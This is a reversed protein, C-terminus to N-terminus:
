ELVIISDSEVESVALDVDSLPDCVLCSILLFHSLNLDVLISFLWPPMEDESNGAVLVNLPWKQLKRCFHSYLDILLVM